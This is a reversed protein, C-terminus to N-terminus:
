PTPLLSYLVSFSFFRLLLIRVFSKPNSYIVLRRRGEEKKRRGEEKKRRGEKNQWLM